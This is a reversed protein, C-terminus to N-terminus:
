LKGRPNRRKGRNAARGLKDAPSMERHIEKTLKLELTRFYTPPIDSWGGIHKLIQEPMKAELANMAFSHRFRHTHLGEIGCRAGLRQLMLYLWKNGMTQGQESVWLAEEGSRTRDSRAVVYDWLAGTTTEGIPMWREKRGKGMVLVAGQDFDVDDLAMGCLEALRGPTDWLLFVAARDRFMRFRKGPTADTLDMWQLLDLVQSESVTQIVKEDVKPRAILTFPNRDIHGREMLWQFFRHLRRHHTDITAPSLRKRAARREGFWLPRAQLYALYEELHSVTLDAVDPWAQEDAFNALLGVTFELSEISRETLNASARLSIIFGQGARRVGFVAGSNGQNVGLLRLVPVLKDTM